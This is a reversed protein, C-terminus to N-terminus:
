HIKLMTGSDIFRFIQEFCHLLTWLSWLCSVHFLFALLSVCTVELLNKFCNLPSYSILILKLCSGWRHTRGLEDLRSYLPVRSYGAVLGQHNPRSLRLHDSTWQRRKWRYDSHPVHRCGLTRAPHLPVRWHGAEVGEHKLLVITSHIFRFLKSTQFVISIFFSFCTRWNLPAMPAMQYTKAGEKM